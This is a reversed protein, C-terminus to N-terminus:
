GTAPVDPYGFESGLEAFTREWSVATLAAKAKSAPIHRKRGSMIM